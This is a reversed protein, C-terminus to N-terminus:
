VPDFVQRFTARVTEVDPEDLSRSWEDCVFLGATDAPSTWQFSRVAAADRLFADIAAADATTRGRFELAWVEPKNNIGFTQRQEYGDGFAVRKVSPRM